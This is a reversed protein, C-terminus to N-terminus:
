GCWQLTMCRGRQRDTLRSVRDRCHLAKQVSEVLGSILKQDPARTQLKISELDLQHFAELSTVASKHQILEDSLVPEVLLHDTSIVPEESSSETGHMCCARNTLTLRSEGTHPLAEQISTEHISSLESFEVQKQDRHMHHKCTEISEEAM